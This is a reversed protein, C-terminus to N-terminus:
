ISKLIFAFHWLCAIRYAEPISVRYPEPVSVRDCCVLIGIAVLRGDITQHSRSVIDFNYNQGYNM